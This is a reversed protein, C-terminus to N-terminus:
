LEFPKYNVAVTLNKQHSLYQRVGQQTMETGSAYLTNLTSISSLYAAGVDSVPNLTIM